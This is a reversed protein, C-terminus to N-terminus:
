AAEADAVEKLHPIICEPCAYLLASGPVAAAHNECLPEHCVYCDTWAWENCHHEGCESYEEVM